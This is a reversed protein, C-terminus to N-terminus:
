LIMYHCSAFQWYQIVQLKNATKDVDPNTYVSCINM